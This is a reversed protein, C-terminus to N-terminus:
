AEHSRMFDTVARAGCHADQRFFDFVAPMSVCLVAVMACTPAIQGCTPTIQDSRARVEEIRLLQNYKANRESRCPAGTKIQGCALGVALDAIFTDQPLLCQIATQQQQRTHKPQRLYSAASRQRKQQGRQWEYCIDACGCPWSAWDGGGGRM